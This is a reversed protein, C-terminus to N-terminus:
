GGRGGKLVALVGGAIYAAADARSIGFPDSILGGEYRGGTAVDILQEVAAERCAAWVLQRLQRMDLLLAPCQWAAPGALVYLERSGALARPLVFLFCGVWLCTPPWDQRAASPAAAGM